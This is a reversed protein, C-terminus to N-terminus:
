LRHMEREMAASELFADRRPPYHRPVRRSKESSSLFMAHLVALVGRHSKTRPLPVAAATSLAVAQETILVPPQRVTESAHEPDDAVVLPDAPTAIVESM